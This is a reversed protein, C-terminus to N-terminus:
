NIFEMVTLNIICGIYASGDPAFVVGFGGVIAPTVDIAGTLADNAIIADLVDAAKDAVGAYQTALDRAQGARQYAFTYRLVYTAHKKALAAVCTSDREVVLSQVFGVPEPYLTPTRDLDATTPIEDLDCIRVGAVSLAAISNTVTTIALAM